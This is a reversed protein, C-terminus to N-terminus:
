KIKELYIDDHIAKHRIIIKGKEKEIPL